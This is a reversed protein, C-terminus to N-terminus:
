RQDLSSLTGIETEFRARNEGVIVDLFDVASGKSTAFCGVTLQDTIKASFVTGQEFDYRHDRALDEIKRFGIKIQQMDQFTLSIQYEKHRTEGDFMFAGKLTMVFFTENSPKGNSDVTTRIRCEVTISQSKACEHKKSWRVLTAVINM